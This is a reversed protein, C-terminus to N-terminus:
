SACMCTWVGGDHARAYAAVSQACSASLESASQLDTVMPIRELLTRQEDAKKDLHAQIFAPDGLPTGLVVIGQSPPLDTEGSGRWVRARPDAAQAIRELADCGEPRIGSRNWVQTKGGHVRIRAHSFLNRQLSGYVHSVREPVPSVVWIDDLYAVLNEGDALEEQTAELAGHLGLSCLLPTLPDGQEGGEGQLISHEVGVADEWVYTSPSGYFMRVFPITEGGCHTYLGDLMAARSIQDYASTGDISMMTSDPNLESLGQIVHAVCESGVRTSLAYQFPATASEVQPGSQQAMTHAQEGCRGRRHGTPTIRGQAVQEALKFLWQQDTVSDLLPRLHEVTM